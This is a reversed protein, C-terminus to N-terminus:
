QARAASLHRRRRQENKALLPDSAAKEEGAMPCFGAKNKKKLLKCNDASRLADRLANRKVFDDKALAHEFATFNPILTDLNTTLKVLKSSLPEISLDLFSQLEKATRDTDCYLDRYELWFVRPAQGSQTEVTALDRCYDYFNCTHAVATRIACTARPELKLKTRNTGWVAKNFNATIDDNTFCTENHRLLRHTKCKDQHADGNIQALWMEIPNSRALCVIRVDHEQVLRRAAGHRVLVEAKQKAGVVRGVPIDRDYFAALRRWEDDMSLKLAERALDEGLAELVAGHKKLLSMLWTSGVRGQEMMVMFKAGKEKPATTGKGLEGTCGGLPYALSLRQRRGDLLSKPCRELRLTSGSTCVVVVFLVLAVCLM